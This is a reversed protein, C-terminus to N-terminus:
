RRRIRVRRTPLAPLAVWALLMLLAILITPPVIKAADGEGDARPGGKGAPTAPNPGVMPLDVGNGVTPLGLGVGTLSPPAAVSPLQVPNSAGGRSGPPGVNVDGGGGGGSSDGDGGGGGGSGDGDGDDGDPPPSSPAPQVGLSISADDNADAADDTLASGDRVRADIVASRPWESDPDFAGKFVLENTEDDSMAGLSCVYASTCRDDRRESRWSPIGVDASVDSAADPGNNTVRVRITVPDGARLTGANEDKAGIAVSLDVSDFFIIKRTVKNDATDAEEGTQSVSITQTRTAASSTGNFTFSKAAGAPIPDPLECNYTTGTPNACTLAPEVSNLSLGFPNLNLKVGTAEITGSNRITVTFNAPEDAPLRLTSGPPTVPTVSVSIDPAAAAQAPLQVLAM